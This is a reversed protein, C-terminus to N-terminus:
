LSLIVEEIDKFSPIKNNLMQLSVKKYKNLQSRHLYPKCEQYIARIEAEEM